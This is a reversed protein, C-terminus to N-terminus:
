NGNLVIRRNNQNINSKFDELVHENKYNLVRINFPYNKIYDSIIDSNIKTELISLVRHKYHSSFGYPLFEIIEDISEFEKNDRKEVFKKALDSNFFNLSELENFSLNNANNLIEETNRIEHLPAQNNSIERNLIELTEGPVMKEILELNNESSAKRILTGSVGNIRPIFIFKNTFDFGIKNLSKTLSCIVYNDEALKGKILTENVTSDVIKYPKPKITHGLEIRELVKDFEPSPNYGRPIYDTNLVQFLKALCLSYQGSGMIGMPPGEVCVDVGVNVAIEARVDRPLIYPQGRGNREFLGPIIGVFIADPHKKKSEKMCHYHGNHLPSYETFDSIIKIDSDVPVNPSYYKLADEYDKKFVKKDKKQIKYAYEEISM